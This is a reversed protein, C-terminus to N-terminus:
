FDVRLEGTYHAGEQSLVSSFLTFGTIRVFDFEASELKLLFSKLDQRAVNKARGLTIHPHFPRLDPELGVSLVADQIRKHLEFLHPHGKGVGAWIVTPHEGGFVGVGQVPLFFPAVRVKALAAHLRQGESTGM